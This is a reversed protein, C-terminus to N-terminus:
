PNPNPNHPPEPARPARHARPPRVTTCHKEGNVEACITQVDGSPHEGRRGVEHLGISGNVTVLKLTSGGTGITGRLHRTSIKGSIKVRFDTEVRGNVTEADINANISRPLGATVSGNVTTLRIDGSALSEMIAEISGNVTNANVPGTSTIVSIKGNVTSAEVPASVGNIELGGNVTSADVPVSHPLEVVIRVAVDNKKVGNLRYDGGEQCRMERAEWMACITVGRESLVPIMQVSEPDSNRWSKEVRVVLSDSRGPVVDIPGNTNRIWVQQSPTIYARYEWNGGVTRDHGFLDGGGEGDGWNFDGFAGLAGLPSPVHINRKVNRFFLGAGLVLGFLVGGRIIERRWTRWFRKTPHQPDLLIDM